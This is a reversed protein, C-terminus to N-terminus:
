RSAVDVVERPDEQLERGLVAADVDVRMLVTDEHDHSLIVLEFRDHSSPRAYIFNWEGGKKSRVQVLPSFGPGLKERMMRQLQRSDLRDAGTFTVLQFDHVGEPAAMWVFMRALGLFPISVREVGAQSDIAHAVAAFDARLPQALLAVALFALVLRKTM